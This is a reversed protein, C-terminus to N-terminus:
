QLDEPLQLLFINSLGLKLVPKVATCGYICIYIHTCQLTDVEHAHLEVGMTSEIEYNSRYERGIVLMKRDMSRPVVNRDDNRWKMMGRHDSAENFLVHVAYLRMRPQQQTM